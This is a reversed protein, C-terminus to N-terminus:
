AVPEVAQVTENLMKGNALTISDRFTRAPTKGFCCTGSHTLQGNYVSIWKDLDDQM